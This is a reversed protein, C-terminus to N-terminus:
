NDAQDFYPTVFDVYEERETTMILSATGFLVVNLHLFYYDFRIEIVLSIGHLYSLEQNVHYGLFNLQCRIKIFINFIDNESEFHKNQSSRWQKKHIRLDSERM